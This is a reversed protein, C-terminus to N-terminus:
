FYTGKSPTAVRRKAATLDRLRAMAPDIGTLRDSRFAAAEQADMYDNAAHCAYIAALTEMLHRPTGTDSWYCIEDERLEENINEIVTEITTADESEATEGAILVHLKELVRNRMEALTADAM